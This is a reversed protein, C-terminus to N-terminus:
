GHANKIFAHHIFTKDNRRYIVLNMENSSKIKSNKFIASKGKQTILKM